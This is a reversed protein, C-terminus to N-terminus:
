TIFIFLKRPSTVLVEALFSASVTVGGVHLDLPNKKFRFIPKTVGFIIIKMIFFMKEPDVYGFIHQKTKFVFDRRLDPAHVLDPSLHAVVALEGHQVVHWCAPM